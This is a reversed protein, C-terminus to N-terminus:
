ILFLMVQVGAASSTSLLAKLNCPRAIPAALCRLHQQCPEDRASKPVWSNLCPYADGICTQVTHQRFPRAHQSTTERTPVCANPLPRVLSELPGIVVISDNMCMHWCVFFSFLLFVLSCKISLLHMTRSHITAGTAMCLECVHEGGAPKAVAFQMRQKIPMNQWLASGHESDVRGSGASDGKAHGPRVGITANRHRTLTGGCLM